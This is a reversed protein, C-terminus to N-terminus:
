ISKRAKCILSKHCVSGLTLVLSPEFFPFIINLTTLIGGLRLLIFIFLYILFSFIFFYFFSRWRGLRLKTLRGRLYSPLLFWTFWTTETSFKPMRFGFTPMFQFCQIFSNLLVFYWHGLRRWYTSPMGQRSM